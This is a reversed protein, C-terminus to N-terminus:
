SGKAADTTLVTGVNSFLTKVSGVFGTDGTATGLVTTLGAILIGALVAYELSSVGRKDRLFSLISFM